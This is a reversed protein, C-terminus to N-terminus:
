QSRQKFLLLLAPVFDEGTNVKCFDVGSSQLMQSIEQSMKKHKEKYQTRLRKSSTNVWRISNTELDEFLTWGMPSLEADRRDCVRIVVLDHRKATHRLLQIYNQSAALFDSILFATCRKKIVQQVLQLAVEPRTGKGQPQYTLIRRILYLVHKRGKGAPIYLEVKDSFLILGVKDKNRITAFALTAALEATLERKTQETSGFDLSKSVDVLLMTTLEREEEFIKIHPSAYRATVNWDIDRVDDGIAYERVESFAMGRGKFASKYSGSLSGQTLGKAKIEVRRVKALIDSEMLDLSSM